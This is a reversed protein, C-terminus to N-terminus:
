LKRFFGAAAGVTACFGTGIVPLVSGAAAGIAACAAVSRGRQTKLGKKAFKAGQRAARGGEKAVAKAQRMAEQRKDAATVPALRIGCHHCFKDSNNTKASCEPCHM